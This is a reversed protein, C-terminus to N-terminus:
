FLTTAVFYVIVVDILFILYDIWRGKGKIISTSFLGAGGIIPLILAFWKAWDFGQWLLYAIGTNLIAFGLIGGADSNKKNPLKWFSVLHAIANLVFLFIIIYM